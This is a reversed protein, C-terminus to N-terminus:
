VADRDHADARSRAGGLPTLEHAATEITRVEIAGNVHVRETAAIARGHGDSRTSAYSGQHPGPSLDAADYLGTGLAHYVSKLTMTGDVDFTQVQRGFADYRQSGYPTSPAAPPV